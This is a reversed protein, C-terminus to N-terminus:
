PKHSAEGQTQPSVKESDADQGQLSRNEDRIQNVLKEVETKIKEQLHTALSALGQIMITDSANGYLVKLEVPKSSPQPPATDEEVEHGGGAETERVHTDESVETRGTNAPNADENGAETTSNVKQLYESIQSQSLGQAKPFTEKLIRAIEAQSIGKSHLELILAKKKNDFDEILDSVYKTFVKRSIKISKALGNISAGLNDEYLKCAVMKYDESTLPKGNKRNHLLCYVVAPIDPPVNDIFCQITNLETDSIPPLPEDYFDAVLNKTYVDRRLWYAQVRHVGDLVRYEHNKKEVTIPPLQDGRILAAAYQKITYPDKSVRPAITGDIDIQDLPIRVLGDTATELASNPAASGASGIQEAPISGTFTESLKQVTEM